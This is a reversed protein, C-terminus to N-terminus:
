ASSVVIVDVCLCSHLWSICVAMGVLKARRVRRVRAWGLVFLDAKRLDYKCLTSAFDCGDDSQGM